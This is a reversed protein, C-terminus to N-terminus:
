VVCLKELKLKLRSWQEKTHCDWCAQIARNIMRFRESKNKCQNRSEYLKELVRAQEQEFDDVITTTAEILLSKEQQPHPPAEILLPKESVHHSGELQSAMDITGTITVTLQGNKGSSSVTVSTDHLHSVLSSLADSTIRVPLSVDQM